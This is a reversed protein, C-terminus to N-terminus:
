GTFKSGCHRCYVDGKYVELGCSSCSFWIKFIRKNDTGLQEHRLIEAM